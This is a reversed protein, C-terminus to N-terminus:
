QNVDMKIIRHRENTPLADWWCRLASCSGVAVGIEFGVERDANQKAEAAAEEEKLEEKRREMLLKMVDLGEVKIDQLNAVVHNCFRRLCLVNAPVPKCDRCGSWPSRVTLEDIGVMRLVPGGARCGQRNM